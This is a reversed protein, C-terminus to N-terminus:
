PSGSRVSCMLAILVSLALAAPRWCGVFRGVSSAASAASSANPAIIDAAIPTRGWGVSCRGLAWCSSAVAGDLACGVDAVDVVEAAM